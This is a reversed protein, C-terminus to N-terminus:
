RKFIDRIAKGVELPNSKLKSILMFLAEIIGMGFLGICFAVSHEVSMLWNWKLLIVPTLYGTVLAGAIVVSYAKIKESITKPKKNFLLSMIGAILGTIIHMSKLGLKALMDDM